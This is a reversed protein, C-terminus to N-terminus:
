QKCAAEWLGEDVSGSSVLAWQSGVNASSIPEGNGMNGAYWSLNLVRFRQQSCDFEDQFKISRYEGKGGLLKPTNFDYLGWMKALNGTKSITALDVYVVLRGEKLAGEGVLTWEAWANAAALSLLTFTLQKM